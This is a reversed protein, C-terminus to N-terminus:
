GYSAKLIKKNISNKQKYFYEWYEQNLHMNLEYIKNKHVYNIIKETAIERINPNSLIITKFFILDDSYDLTFRLKEDPEIFQDLVKCSSEDFISGWGTELINQNNKKLPDLLFKKQIGFTNMGFPFYKTKSYLEGNSMSNFVSRIAEPACFIDDGDVCILYDKSKIQLYEYIRKPINNDDGFFVSINYADSIEIFIKNAAYEGTLISINIINENIEKEFENKIRDILYAIIPKDNIKILHKDKLRKSGMRAIIGISGKPSNMSKM